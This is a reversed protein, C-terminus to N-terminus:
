LLANGGALVMLCADVGRKRAVTLLREDHHFDHFGMTKKPNPLL